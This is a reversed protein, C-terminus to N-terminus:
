ALGLVLQVRFGHLMRRCYDVYEGMVNCGSKHAAYAIRNDARARHSPKRQRPIKAEAVDDPEPAMANRALARKLRELAAPVEEGTHRLVTGSHGVDEIPRRSM